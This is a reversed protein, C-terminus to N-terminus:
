MGIQPMSPQRSLWDSFLGAVTSADSNISSFQPDVTSAWEAFRPHNRVALDRTIADLRAGAEKQGEVRNIMTDAKIKGAIEANQQDTFFNVDNPVLRAEGPEYYSMDSFSARPGAPSAMPVPGVPSAMAVQAPQSNSLLGQPASSRSANIGGGDFLDVYWPVYERSAPDFYGPLKDGTTAQIMADGRAGTPAADRVGLLSRIGGLNLNSTDDPSAKKGNAGALESLFDLIGM